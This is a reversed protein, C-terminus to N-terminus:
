AAARGTPRGKGGLLRETALTNSAPPPDVLKVGPERLVDLRDRYDKDTRAAPRRYFRADSELVAQWHEYKREVDPRTQGKLERQERLQDFQEYTMSGARLLGVGVNDLGGM